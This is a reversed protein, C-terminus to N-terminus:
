RVTASKEDEYCEKDGDLLGDFRERSSGVYMLKDKPNRPAQPRPDPSCFFFFDQVVGRSTAM